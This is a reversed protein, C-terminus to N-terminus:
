VERLAEAVDLATVSTFKRAARRGAKSHITVARRVLDFASEGDKVSVLFSAILGSLVDGTGATALEPGGLRDVYIQNADAVVTRNGKLVVIVGFDRAISQAVEERSRTLLHERYVDGLFRLEGEHPTIVIPGRQSIAGKKNLKSIAASDLVTPIEPLKKLDSNGPGLLLVDIREQDIKRIPVVDPFQGIVANSIAQDFSLFKVYGANGRRAGAVALLAAGPFEKSGACIAVVGRSYKNDTRSLKQRSM